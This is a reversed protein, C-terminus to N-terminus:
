LMRLKEEIIKLERLLGQSTKFPRFCETTLIYFDIINIVFSMYLSHTLTFGQIWYCRATGCHTINYM